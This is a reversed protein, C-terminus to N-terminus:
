IQLTNKVVDKLYNKGSHILSDNPDKGRYLASRIVVGLKSAHKNLDSFAERGTDDNDYMFFLKSSIALLFNLFRSTRLATLPSLVKVGLGLQHISESDFAGETVVIPEDNGVDCFSYFNRYVWKLNKDYLIKYYRERNDCGVYRVDFGVLCSSDLNIMPIFICDELMKLDLVGRLLEFTSIANIGLTSLWPISLNRYRLGRESLYHDLLDDRSCDM